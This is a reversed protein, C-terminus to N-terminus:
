FTAYKGESQFKKAVNYAPDVVEEKKKSYSSKSSSHDSTGVSSRHVGMFKM